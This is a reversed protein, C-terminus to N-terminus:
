LQQMTITMGLLFLFHKDGIQDLLDIMIQLDSSEIKARDLKAEEYTMKHDTLFIENLVPNDSLFDDMSTVDWIQFDKYEKCTTYFNKVIM